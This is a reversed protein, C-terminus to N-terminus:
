EEISCCHAISVVEDLFVFLFPVKIDKNSQFITVDELYLLNLDDYTDEVPYTETYSDVIKKALPIIEDIGLPVTGMMPGASTQIFVKNGSQQTASSVFDLFNFKNKNM